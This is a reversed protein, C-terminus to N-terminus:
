RAAREEFEILPVSPAWKKPILVGALFVITSGLILFAFAAILTDASGGESSLINLIPVEDGTYWYGIETMIGIVGMLIGIIAILLAGLSFFLMTKDGENKKLPITIMLIGTPIHLLIGAIRSMTMPLYDQWTLLVITVISGVFTYILLTKVLKKNDSTELILGSAFLAPIMLMLIQPIATQLDGFTPNILSEWTGTNTVMLFVWFQAGFAASWFLHSMKRNNIYDVLLVMALVLVILGCLWLFMGSWEYNGTSFANFGGGGPQFLM